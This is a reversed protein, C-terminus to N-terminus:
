VIALNQEMIYRPLYNLTSVVVHVLLHFRCQLTYALMVACNSINM